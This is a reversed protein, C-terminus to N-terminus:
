RNILPQGPARANFFRGLSRPCMLLMPRHCDKLSTPPISHIYVAIKVLCFSRFRPICLWCHDLWKWLRMADCIHPQLSGWGGEPSGWVGWGMSGKITVFSIRDHL